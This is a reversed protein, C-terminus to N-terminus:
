PVRHRPAVLGRPRLILVLVIVSGFAVMRYGGVVRLGELFGVDFLTGAVPGLVSALGGILTYAVAHVGLMLSFNTADIYTAYHAFLGGGLGAIAGAIGFARLRTRMPNIALSAALGPDNAVAIVRRGPGQKEYIAIAVTCLVAIALCLIAQGLPSVEHVYFYDIGSFGLPGDPGITRGGVVHVWRLKLILEKIFESFVLSMLAFHFGTVRVLALGACAAVLGGVAVSVALAPLLSWGFMATLMASSYAGIGFFAQQGFSIEGAKLVLYCSLALVLYVSFVPVISVAYNV